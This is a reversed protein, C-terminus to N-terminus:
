SKKWLILTIIGWLRETHDRRQNIHEAWMKEVAAKDLGMSILAAGDGIIEEVWDRLENRLWSSLPISFGMKPRDVMYKPVYRYLLHRLIKKGEKDDIKYNPPLSLAFEVIRHDLFPARTELSVAMAARDVKVLIDDPLFLSADWLAASAAIDPLVPISKDFASAGRDVFPFSVQRYKDMWYKVMAQGDPQNWAQIVAEARRLYTDGKAIPIIASFIWLFNKWPLRRLFRTKWLKRFLLYQSYGCFLEDGGDGSLAVTVEKRALQCVLFTPIQSSDAFPEDWIAPLGPIIDLAEEPLITHEIHNTGLHEAVKRAFHAENYREEPMGISFTTVDFAKATKMLATILSSDIGGSLFAGVPVDAISQKEVSQLMLRGLEETAEHFNGKFPNEIGKVASKEMSWYHRQMPMNHSSFDNEDMLLFSAPLLKYIRKYISYPAPIYGRHSYINVAAPEIEGEFLPHCKLAKLESAFMFTDQQWGYYLPKEGMRDRALVLQRDKRDWVAFAFMGVTKRLTKEVGWAAFCELLSETDSSGRWGREPLKHQNELEQRLQLHNYIEGNFVLVYRGSASVMPQHGAPSLDLVALRRQGLVVGASEDRWFGGDDPGRHVIAATMQQIVSVPDILSHNINAIFGTIGCM